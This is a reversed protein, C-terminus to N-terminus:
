KRKKIFTGMSSKVAIRALTMFIDMRKYYIGYMDKIGSLDYSCYAKKIFAEYYLRAVFELNDRVVKKYTDVTIRNGRYLDLILAPYEVGFAYFLNYKGKPKNKQPIEEFIVRNDIIYKSRDLNAFLVDLHPFLENYDALSNQIANFDDKWITMGTSWSSWYSLNGVFQDFSGYEYINNNKNLVGNSFYIIPKENQFKLAVDIFLQLTGKLLLTRHNVFKLLHGNARRYAEIENVFPLAQTEDYHVNPHCLLYERIKEKFEKNDGNDTIIVEYLDQDVGQASISDLVPFLWEIVGNTPICLSVIPNNM